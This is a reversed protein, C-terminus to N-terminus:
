HTVVRYAIGVSQNNPLGVNFRIVFLLLSGGQGITVVDVEPQVTWYAGATPTVWTTGGDDPRFPGIQVVLLQRRTSQARAVNHSGIAVPLTIDAVQGTPGTSGSTNRILIFGGAINGFVTTASSNAPTGAHAAGTADDVGLSLREANLTRVQGSVGVNNPGGVSLDTDIRWHGSNLNLLRDTKSTTSDIGFGLLQVFKKRSTASSGDGLDVVNRTTGGIISVSGTCNFEYLKAMSDANGHDICHRATFQWENGSPAQVVYATGGVADWYSCSDLDVNIQDGSYTIDTTIAPKSTLGGMQFICHDFRWDLGPNTVMANTGGQFTVDEFRVVNSYGAGSERGRVASLFELGLTTHVVHITNVGNLSMAAAATGSAGEARGIFCGDILAMTSNKYNLLTNNYASNDFVLELNCLMPGTNGNIGTAASSFDIAYGSGAGGKWILRTKGTARASGDTPGVEYWNWGHNGEFRVGQLQRCDIMTSFPFDEDRFLLHRFGNTLLNNIIPGWDTVSGPTSQTAWVDTGLAEVADGNVGPLGQLGQPGQLGATVLVSDPPQPPKLTM